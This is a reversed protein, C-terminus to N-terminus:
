DLCEFSFINKSFIDLFGHIENAAIACQASSSHRLASSMSFTSFEREQGTPVCIGVTDM